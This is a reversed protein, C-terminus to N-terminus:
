NQLFFFMHQSGEDSGDRGSPESSPDCYITEILFLFFIIMLYERKDLARTLKLYSVTTKYSKNTWQKCLVTVLGYKFLNLVFCILLQETHFTPGLECCHM